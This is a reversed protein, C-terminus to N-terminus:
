CNQSPKAFGPLAQDNLQRKKKRLMCISKKEEHKVANM